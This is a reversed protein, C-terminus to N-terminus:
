LHRYCEGIPPNQRIAERWHVIADDFRGIRSFAVGLNQHAEANHPDLQAGKWDGGRRRFPKGTQRHM